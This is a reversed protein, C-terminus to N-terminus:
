CPMEQAAFILPCRNGPSRIYKTGSTTGSTKAFYEPKGPWTVDKEGSVIRDVYGTLGEYDRIPVQKRIVDISNIDAFGHDKGFATHRAERV